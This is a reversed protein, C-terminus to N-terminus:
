LAGLRGAPRAVAARRRRPQLRAPAPPGVLPDARPLRRPWSRQGGLAAVDPRPSARAPHGRGRALRARRGPLRVDIRAPGDDAAGGCAGPTHWTRPRDARGSAEDRLRVLQRSARLADCAPHRRPELAGVDSSRRGARPGRDVRRDLRPHSGGGLPLRSLRFQVRHAARGPRLYRALRDADPLWIEGVLVRPEEYSDAVGRWRRYVDHTEDRDTFPHEGPGADSREDRLEPDKMLLAASDIRVGAAGRDFWFRLVNEHEEWVDPHTWNLDPQEPAFLHLYWEGDAVRTWANGGFISQWQNPPEDGDVGRGPRFWFRAREPSGPTSALAARFWPHQDSVHNPVVDVITRIGLARADAILGEAEPLTGFAPDISRYDSIDYGNDAGPSPYWPNFWLGDVGLDRLYPLRDRVGALDGVGDGNADAFSRTYVQYIVADRWWETVPARVGEELPAAVDRVAM